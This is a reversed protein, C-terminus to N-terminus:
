AKVFQNSYCIFQIQKWITGQLPVYFYTMQMDFSHLAKLSNYLQWTMIYFRLFIPCPQLTGQPMITQAYMSNTKRLSPLYISIRRTLQSVLSLASCLDAVTFWKSDTPVNSLLTNPVIPFRPIVTKNIVHLLDGVEDM